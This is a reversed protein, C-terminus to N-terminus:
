IKHKIFDYNKYDHVRSVGAIYIEAKWVANNILGVIEALQESRFTFFEAVNSFARALLRPENDEIREEFFKKLLILENAKIEDKPDPVSKLYVFDCEFQGHQPLTYEPDIFFPSGNYTENRFCSKNGSISRDAMLGELMLKHTEKNLVLLSMALERELYHALNLSYHGTPNWFSFYYCKNMVKSINRFTKIDNFHSLLKFRVHRDVIRNMLYPVM